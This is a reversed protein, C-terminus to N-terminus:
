GPLAATLATEYAVQVATARAAAARFQEIHLHDRHQNTGPRLRQWEDIRETTWIHGDWMVRMTGYVLRQAVLECALQWGQDKLDHRVGVDLARGEAHLSWSASGSIRRRNYCGYGGEMSQLDPYVTRIARGLAATGSQCGRQPPDAAAPQYRV